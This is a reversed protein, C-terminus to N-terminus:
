EESDKRKRFAELEAKMADIDTSDGSSKTNIEHKETLVGHAQLLTRFMAANGDNIIHDPISAMVEPLRDLTNRMITRKLEENFTDDNKWRYLTSRDVGVEEAIQDNTMGNMKPQALITIAAIQKESLRKAM